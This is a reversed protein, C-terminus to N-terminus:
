PVVYGRNKKEFEKPNKLFVAAATMKLWGKKNDEYKKMGLLAKNRNQSPWKTCIIKVIM